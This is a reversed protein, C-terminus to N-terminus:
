GIEAGRNRAKTVITKCKLNREEFFSKMDNALARANTDTVAYVAPGTSSMGASFESLFNKMIDGYREVEAKKFGLEQIRRIAFVFSELDREIISPLLKMLILHCLERVDEISVPCAKRFLDIEEIGYAGKLDPLAVVIDWDPFNLRSIIPPPKAKSASSPLFEKKEKTSHGGDVIFGGSEFAAVGIGSTGGRGAIEAIERVSMKIGYIECYAKGVALAAQTGSGLGVHNDYDSLVRIKIGYGFRNAFREAAKKFRENGEICLEESEKAVIEIFPEELALGVGGDIRGISGNMDILTIHLRSPTKVKM